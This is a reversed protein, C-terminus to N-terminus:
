VWGRLGSAAVRRLHILSSTTLAKSSVRSFANRSLHTLSYALLHACLWSTLSRPPLEYTFLTHALVAQKGRLCTCVACLIGAAAATRPGLTSSTVSESSCDPMDLKISGAKRPCGLESTRSVCLARSPDAAAASAACGVGTCTSSVVKVM